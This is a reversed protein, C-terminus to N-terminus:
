KGKIMVFVNKVYAIIRFFVGETLLEDQGVSTADPSYSFYHILTAPKGLLEILDKRVTLFLAEYSLGFPVEIADASITLAFEDFHLEM